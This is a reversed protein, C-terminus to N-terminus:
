VCAICTCAVYTCANSTFAIHTCATHTCATNRSAISTCATHTCALLICVEKSCLTVSIYFLLMLVVCICFWYLINLLHLVCMLIPRAKLARGIQYIATRNM